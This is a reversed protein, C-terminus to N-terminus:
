YEFFLKIEETKDLQDPFLYTTDSITQPLIEKKFWLGLYEGPNLNGINISRDSGGAFNYSSALICQGTTSFTIPSVDIGITKLEILLYKQVTEIVEGYYTDTSDTNLTQITKNVFTVTYTENDIFSEEILSYTEDITLNSTAAICDVDLITIVEGNIAPTLIEVKAFAFSSKTNYFTEIFAPKQRRNDVADFYYQINGSKVVSTNADVAALTLKVRNDNTPYVIYAMIDEIVDTVTDTGTNKLALCIYEPLKENEGKSSIGDFIGNKQGNAVYSSSVYNGLSLNQQPQKDVFNGAGTYFLALGM